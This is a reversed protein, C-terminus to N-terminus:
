KYIIKLEKFIFNKIEAYIAYKNFKMIRVHYTEKLLSITWESDHYKIFVSENIPIHSYRVYQIGDVIM